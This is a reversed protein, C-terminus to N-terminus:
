QVESIKIVKYNVDMRTANQEVTLDFGADKRRANVKDADKIPWIYWGIDKGNKLPRCSAQTGYLQEKGQNSLQRDLMMAYLRYPLEKHEAAKKILPLYEDIKSSHQIVNWAAENAPEGVLTKGPYGYKKFVQEVFAINASDLHNQLKWYYNMANAVSLSVSKAVSDKKSPGMLFTLAERYKQDLLIVSDMQQKLVINLKHQAIATGSFLIFLVAFISKM